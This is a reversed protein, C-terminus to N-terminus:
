HSMIHYGVVNQMNETKFRGYSKFWFAWASEEFIYEGSMRINRKYILKIKDNRLFPPLHALSALNLCSSRLLRFLEGPLRVRYTQSDTSM